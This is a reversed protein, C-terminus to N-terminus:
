GLEKELQSLMQDIFGIRYLVMAEEEIWCRLTVMLWHQLSFKGELQEEIWEALPEAIWDPGLDRALDCIFPSDDDDPEQLHLRIDLLLARVDSYHGPAFFKNVPVHIGLREIVASM